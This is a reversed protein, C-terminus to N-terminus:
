FTVTDGNREPICSGISFIILFKGLTVRSCDQKPGKRKLLEYESCVRSAGPSGHVSPLSFSCSLCSARGKLAGMRPPVSLCCACFCAHIATLKELLHAPGKELAQGDLVCVGELALSWVQGMVRRARNTLFAVCGCLLGTQQKCQVKGGLGQFM